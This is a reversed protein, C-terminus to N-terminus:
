PELDAEDDKDNETVVDLLAQGILARCKPDQSFSGAVEWAKGIVDDVRIGHGGENGKAM